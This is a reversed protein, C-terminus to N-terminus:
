SSGRTEAVGRYFAAIWQALLDNDEPQELSAVATDVQDDTLPDHRRNEYLAASFADSFEPHGQFSIAPGQAYALGAFVCFDSAATVIAGPPPAIVQDQHSVALAFTEPAEEGMWSQRAAVDYTHRGLGWGKPSKVVQGGLAQAMAQHGFCIGVQPVSKAACWRIFDMLMPMWPEPDYVGAPSGTILVADLTEPDPLPAGDLLAVTEYSFGDDACSILAEFMAPYNPFRDRLPAMPRGTEIITIKMGGYVRDARQEPCTHRLPKAM